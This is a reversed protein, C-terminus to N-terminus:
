HKAKQLSAGTARRKIAGERRERRAIQTAYSFCRRQTGVSTCIACEAGHPGDQVATKQEGREKSHNEQTQYVRGEKSCSRCGRV